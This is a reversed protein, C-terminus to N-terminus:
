KPGLAKLANQEDIIEKDVLCEKYVPKEQIITSIRNEHVTEKGIRAQSLQSYLEGYNASLTVLASTLVANHEAEVRVKEEWKSKEADVGKNYYVKSVIFFCTFIALVVCIFVKVNTPILGLIRNGFGM